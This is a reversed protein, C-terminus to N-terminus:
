GQPSQLTAGFEKDLVEKARKEDKPSVMIKGSATYFGIKNDRFLVQKVKAIADKQKPTYAEKLKGGLMPAAKKPDVGRYYLKLADVPDVKKYSSGVKKLEKEFKEMWRLLPKEDSENFMHEEKQTAINTKKNYKYDRPSKGDKKREIRQGRM